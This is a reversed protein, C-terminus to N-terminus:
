ILKLRNFSIQKKIVNKDTEYIKELMGFKRDSQAKVLKRVEKNVQDLELIKNDLHIDEIIHKNLNKSSIPAVITNLLMKSKQNRTNRMSFYDQKMKSGQVIPNQAERTFQASTEIISSASPNLTSATLNIGSHKINPMSPEQNVSTKIQTLNQSKLNRMPIANQPSKFDKFLIRPKGQILFDGEELKESSLINEILPYKKLSTVGHFSRKHETNKFWNNSNGLTQSLQKQQSNQHAISAKQQTYKSPSNNESNQKQQMQTFNEPLTKFLTTKNQTTKLRQEFLSSEKKQEIRTQPRQNLTDFFTKEQFQAIYDTQINMQSPSSIRISLKPKESLKQIAFLLTGNDVTTKRQNQIRLFTSAQSVMRNTNERSDKNTGLESFDNVRMSSGRKSTAAKIDPIQQFIQNSVPSGNIYKKNIAVQGNAMSIQKEANEFDQVLKNIFLNENKQYSSITKQAQTYKVNTQHESMKDQNYGRKHLSNFFRMRKREKYSLKSKKKKKGYMMENYRKEFEVKEKEYQNKLFSNENFDQNDNIDNLHQAKVNKKQKSLRNELNLKQYCLEYHKNFNRQMIDFEQPLLGEQNLIDILSQRNMDIQYLLVKFHLFRQFTQIMRKLANQLSMKLTNSTDLPQSLVQEQEKIKVWIETLQARQANMQKQILAVEIQEDEVIKKLSILNEQQQLKKKQKLEHTSKILNKIEKEAKKAFSDQSNHSDEDEESDVAFMDDSQETQSRQTDENQDTKIPSLLEIQPMKLTDLGDGIKQALTIKKNNTKTPKQYKCILMMVEDPFHAQKIVSPAFERIKLIKACIKNLMDLITAHFKKIFGKFKMIQQQNDQIQLQLEGINEKNYKVQFTVQHDLNQSLKNHDNPTQWFEINQKHQNLQRRLELLLDKRNSIEVTLDGSKIQLSQNYITAEEIYETLNNVSEANFYNKDELTKFRQEIFFTIEPTLDEISYKTMYYEHERQYEDQALKLEILFLNKLEHNVKHQKDNQFKQQNNYYTYLGALFTADILQLMESKRKQYLQSKMQDINIEKNERKIQELKRKVVQYTNSKQTIMYKMSKVESEHHQLETFKLKVKDQNKIKAEILNEKCRTFGSTSTLLSTQNLFAAQKINGYMHMLRELEPMRHCYEQYDFLKQSYMRNKLKDLTLWDSTEELCKQELQSLKVDLFQKKEILQEMTFATLYNDYGKHISSEITMDQVYSSKASFKSMTSLGPQFQTNVTNNFKSKTENFEFHAEGQTAKTVGQWFEHEQKLKELQTVEYNSGMDKLVAQNSNGIQAGNSFKNNGQRRLNPDKPMGKFLRQLNTSTTSQKGYTDQGNQIKVQNKDKIKFLPNAQSSSKKLTM